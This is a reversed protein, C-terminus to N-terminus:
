LMDPQGKTERFSTGGCKGCKSPKVVPYVEHCKTCHYYIANSGHGFPFNESNCYQVSAVEVTFPTMDKLNYVLQAFVGDKPTPTIKISGYAGYSVTTAAKGDWPKLTLESCAYMAQDANTVPLLYTGDSATATFILNGNEDLILSKVKAAKENDANPEDSHCGALTTVIAVVVLLSLTKILRNIKM